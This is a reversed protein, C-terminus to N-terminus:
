RAAGWVRVLTIQVQAAADGSGATIAKTLTVNTADLVTNVWLSIRAAALIPTIICIDPAVAAGAENLFGHAIAGTTTDADATATITFTRILRGGTIAAPATNSVAGFVPLVWLLNGLTQPPVGIILACALVVACGLLFGVFAPRVLRRPNPAAYENVEKFNSVKIM